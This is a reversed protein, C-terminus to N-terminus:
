LYTMIHSWAGMESVLFGLSISSSKSKPSGKFGLDVKTDWGLISGYFDFVWLPLPYYDM